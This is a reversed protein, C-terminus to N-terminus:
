DRLGKRRERVWLGLLTAAGAAVVMWEGVYNTENGTTIDDLAAWILALVLLIFVLKMWRRM